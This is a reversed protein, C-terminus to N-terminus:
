PVVIVEKVEEGGGVGADECVTGIFVYKRGVVRGEDKPWFIDSFLVLAMDLRALRIIGLYTRIKIQRPFRGQM